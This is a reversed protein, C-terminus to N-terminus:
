NRVGNPLSVTVGVVPSLDSFRALDSCVNTTAGSDLIWSGSPLSNYLTSLCQHHFTLTQHEFSLNTSLCPINGFSSQSDMYGTETISARHASTATASPRIQRQLQHILNNVQDVNMISLDLNVNGSGPTSRVVNAVTNNKM